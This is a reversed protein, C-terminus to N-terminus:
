EHQDGYNEERQENNKKEREEVYNKIFNKLVTAPNTREARCLTKFKFYLSENVSFTIEINKNKIYEM